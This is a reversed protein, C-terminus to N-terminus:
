CKESLCHNIYIVSSHASTIGLEGMRWITECARLILSNICINMGGMQVYMKEIPELLIGTGFAM